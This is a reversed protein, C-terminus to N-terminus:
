AAKTVAIRLEQAVDERDLGAIYTNGAMKQIKPEWRLILDNDIQM